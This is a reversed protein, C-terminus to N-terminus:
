SSWKIFQYLRNICYIMATDVTFKVGFHDPVTVDSDPLWTLFARGDSVMLDPGAWM